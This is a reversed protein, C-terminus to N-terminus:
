SESPRYDDLALEFLVTTDGSAPDRHVGAVDFGLRVALHLM